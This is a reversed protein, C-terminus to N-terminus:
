GLEVPAVRVAEIKPKYPRRLLVTIGLQATEVVSAPHQERLMMAVRRASELDPQLQSGLQGDMLVGWLVIKDAAPKGERKARSARGM